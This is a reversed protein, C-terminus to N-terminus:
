YETMKVETGVLFQYDTLNVETGLLLQYKLETGALLAEKQKAENIECAGL